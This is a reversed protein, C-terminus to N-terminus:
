MARRSASARTSLRASTSAPRNTPATTSACVTFANTATRRRCSSGIARYASSKATWTAVLVQGSDYAAQRGHGHQCDACGPQLLPVAQRQMNSGMLARNADDHELFPILAASIGVIQRPAIDMYDIRHAPRSWSSRTTARRFATMSSSAANTWRAREGARHRLQDEEDASLYDIEDGVFPMVPVNEIDLKALSRAGIRRRHM